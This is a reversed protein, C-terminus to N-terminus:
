ASSARSRTGKCRDLAMLGGGIAAFGLLIALANLLVRAYGLQAVDVFPYPYLGFLAGRVLVYTFYLVPYIAWRLLNGLGFRGRAVFCWWYGLYVPPLLDHLLSDALLHLGQPHSLHRLLLSYALDVLVINAALGTAVSPRGFFRAMRTARGSAQLSFALAVLLNTLITFFSLLNIVGGLIGAGHAVRAALVLYFQLAIAFWGLLAGALAYPKLWRPAALANMTM